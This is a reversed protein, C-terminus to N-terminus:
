RIKLYEMWQQGVNELSFGAVSEMANARCKTYLEKDTYMLNIAKTLEDFDQNKVLLGNEGDQIIDSPGTQCDFAVLPTGCALAELLVMPLGEYKSSLVFFLAHRMYYYPNDQFGTFIVKEELGMKAAKEELSKQLVGQGLLVLKINESPLVSNAYADILKDFQKINDEGMRGAAMIYNDKVLSINNGAREKIYDINLPYVINKVNTLGHKKEIQQKIRNTMTVIGYAKAYIYRTLWSKEPMYWKINFHHVTYIAPATYILRSILLDQLPKKRMRFDIIYDFGNDKIFRRLVRFRKYKDFVDNRSNKLKGLNLLTGSFDYSIIDQVIVNHIEVGRSVFFDSLFAHVREAGGGSLADGVLCIKTQASLAM